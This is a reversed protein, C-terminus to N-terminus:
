GGQCINCHKHHPAPAACCLTHPAKPQQSTVLKHKLVKRRFSKFPRTGPWAQKSRAFSAVLCQSCTHQHVTHTHEPSHKTYQERATDRLACSNQCCCQCCVLWYETTVTSRLALRGTAQLITLWLPKQTISSPSRAADAQQLRTSNKLSIQTCWDHQKHDISSM